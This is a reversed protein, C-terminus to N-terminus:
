IKFQQIFTNRMQGLELDELCKTPHTCLYNLPKVKMKVSNNILGWYRICNRYRYMPFDPERNFLRGYHQSQLSYRRTNCTCIYGKKAIYLNSEIYKQSGGADKTDLKSFLSSLLDTSSATSLAIVQQTYHEICANLEISGNISSMATGDM